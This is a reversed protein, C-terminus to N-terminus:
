VMLMLEKRDRTDKDFDAILQSALSDLESDDMFEALNAEFDEATKPAPALDIEIGDMDISVSDPNEIEIEIGPQADEAVGVPAQYLSKDIM